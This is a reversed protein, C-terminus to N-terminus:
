QKELFKGAWVGGYGGGIILIKKAESMCLFERNFIHVNSNVGLILVPKFLNSYAQISIDQM